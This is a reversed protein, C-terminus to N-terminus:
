PPWAIEPTSTAPTGPGSQAPRWTDRWAAAVLDALALRWVRVVGRLGGDRREEQAARPLM